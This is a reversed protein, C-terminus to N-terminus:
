EVGLKVKVEIEKDARILTVVVVDGPKHEEMAFYLDNKNKIQQEDIKIILDGFHVRGYADRYTPQIGAKDAGSGEIVNLVLLGKLGFRRTIQETAPAIGLTPRIIKGYKILQPVVSKVMDVPISFGVGAYAGSPSYIATNIGILEGSSNLLPGGSNGPNIAADTQIVDKIPIGAVSNIERGLASIIGTTLTQDLGFPNGIAFVSQGVKLPKSIGIPIPSLTSQPADIKLVAIDKAPAVGVLKADWVSGDALTVQAKDADKIVHYNTLIHGERDWVFGSGEGNERERVRWSFFDRQLTSTTIFVVSPAANEFLSITNQENETLGKGTTHKVPILSATPQSQTTEPSRSDNKWSTGILFGIGTFVLLTFLKLFSNNKM